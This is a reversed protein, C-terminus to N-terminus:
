FLKSFRRKQKDVIPRIYRQLNAGSRSVDEVASKTAEIGEKIPEALLRGRQKMWKTFEPILQELLHQRKSAEEVRGMWYGLLLGILVTAVFAGSLVVAPRQKTTTLVSERARNVIDVAKNTPSDAAPKHAVPDFAENM